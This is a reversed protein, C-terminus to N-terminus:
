AADPVEDAESAPKALLTSLIETAVRQIYDLSEALTETTGQYLQIYDSAASSTNLGIGKAVVYAVAEAETERITKTTQQRRDGKHLQEHALEHVLVAFEKAHSLGTRLTIRGGESRGEAGMLTDEYVLEIGQRAILAKLKETYEGPDGNVSAFEPLPQGDTQSVDFVHVAKFGRLVTVKESEDASRQGEEDSKRKYILPALITIGKEGKKVFRGLKKWANFGAVHTADPRQIAILLVNGFSYHHFRGMVALYDLLKQSRGAALEEALSALAEDAVQKAEEHKM